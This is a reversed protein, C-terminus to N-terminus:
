YMHQLVSSPLWELPSYAGIHHTSYYYSYLLGATSVRFGKPFGPAVFGNVIHNLGYNAMLRM